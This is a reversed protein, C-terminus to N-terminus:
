PCCPSFPNCPIGSNSVAALSCGIHPIPAVPSAAFHIAAAPPLHACSGHDCKESKNRRLFFLHHHSKVLQPDTGSVSSKSNVRQASLVNKRPITYSSQVVSTHSTAAGNHASSTGTSRTGTSSASSVHSASTSTHMSPTASHQAIVAPSILLVVSAPFLRLLRMFCREELRFGRGPSVSALIKAPTADM